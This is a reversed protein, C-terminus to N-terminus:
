RPDFERRGYDVRWKFFNVTGWGRFWCSSIHM